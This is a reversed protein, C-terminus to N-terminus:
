LGAISVYKLLCQSDWSSWFSVLVGFVLFWPEEDELEDPSSDIEQPLCRGCCNCRDLLYVGRACRDLGISFACVVLLLTEKYARNKPSFPNSFSPALLDM